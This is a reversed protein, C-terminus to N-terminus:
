IRTKPFIPVFRVVPTGILGTKRTTNEIVSRQRHTNKGSLRLPTEPLSKKPPLDETSAVVVKPSILQDGKTNTQQVSYDGSFVRFAVDQNLGGHTSTLIEGLEPIRRLMSNLDLEKPPL